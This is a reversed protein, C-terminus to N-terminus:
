GTFMRSLDLYIPAPGEFETLQFENLYEMRSAHFRLANLLESMPGLLPGSCLLRARAPEGYALETVYIAYNVPNGGM